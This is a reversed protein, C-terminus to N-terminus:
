DAQHAITVITPSGPVDTSNLAASIRVFDGVPLGPISHPAFRDTHHGTSIVIPAAFANAGFFQFATLNILLLTGNLDLLRTLKSRTHSASRTAFRRQIANFSTM